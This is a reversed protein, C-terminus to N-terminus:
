RPDVSVVGTGVTVTVSFAKATRMSRLVLTAGSQAAGSADFVLSSPPQTAWNVDAPFCTRKIVRAGDVLVYSPVPSTHCAADRVPFRVEVSARRAIAEQQAVRLDSALTHATAIGRQNSAYGVYSPLVIALMIGLLSVVILTELLSFGGASGDLMRLWPGGRKVRALYAM